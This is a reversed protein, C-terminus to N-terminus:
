GDPSGRALPLNRWLFDDLARQLWDPEDGRGPLAAEDIFSFVQVWGLAMAAPYLHARVRLQLEPVKVVPTGERELEAERRRRQEDLWESAADDDVSFRRVVAGLGTVLTHQHVARRWQKWTYAAGKLGAAVADLLRMQNRSKSSSAGVEDALGWKTFYAAANESPTLELARRRFDTLREISAGSALVAREWATVLSGKIEDLYRKRVQESCSRLPKWFGWRECDDALTAAEAHMVAVGNCDTDGRADVVFHDSTPDGLSWAHDPSIGAREVFLAVHFHPHAGNSGGFTVDLVRVRGVLGWRKSWARWEASHTFDEWSSYLEDVTQEARVNVSHPVTVSLMWVDHFLSDGLQERDRMHRHFCVALKSAVERCKRPGCSPCTQWVGCKITGATSWSGRESRAVNVDAQKAFRTRNCKGDRDWESERTLENVIDLRQWLSLQPAQEWEKLDLALQVGQTSHPVSPAFFSGLDAVTPPLDGETRFVTHPGLSPSSGAPAPDETPVPCYAVGDLGLQAAAGPLALQGARGFLSTQDSRTAQARSDLTVRHQGTGADAPNEVTASEREDSPVALNNTRRAAEMLRHM